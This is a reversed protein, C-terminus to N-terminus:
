RIKLAKRARADIGERIALLERVPLVLKKKGMVEQRFAVTIQERDAHITEVANRLAHSMKEREKVDHSKHVTWQAFVDHLKRADATVSSLRAREAEM